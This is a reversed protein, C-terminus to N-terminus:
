SGSRLDPSGSFRIKSNLTRCPVHCHVINEYKQFGKFFVLFSGVMDKFDDTFFGEEQLWFFASKVSLFDVVESHDDM